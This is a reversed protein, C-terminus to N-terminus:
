CVVFIAASATNTKFSYAHIYRASFKVFRTLRLLMTWIASLHRVDTKPLEQIAQHGLVPKKNAAQTPFDVM